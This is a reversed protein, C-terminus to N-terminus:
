VSWYRVGPSSVRCATLIIRTVGDARRPRVNREESVALQKAFPCIGGRTLCTVADGVAGAFGTRVVALITYLLQRVAKVM